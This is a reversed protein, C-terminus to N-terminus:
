MSLVKAEDVFASQIAEELWRQDSERMPRTARAAESAPVAIPASLVAGGGGAPTGADRDTLLIPAAAPAAEAAASAAAFASSDRVGDFKIAAVSGTRGEVPIARSGCVAGRGERSWTERLVRACAGTDSAAAPATQAIAWRLVSAYPATAEEM